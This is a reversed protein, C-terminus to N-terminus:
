QALDGLFAAFDEYLRTADARERWRKRASKRLAHRDAEPRQLFAMILGALEAPTFDPALLGGVQDDVLEPVGGVATAMVPVGASLAEMIAVPIGESSSTNLFLDVPNNRYYERVERNDLRGLFKVKINGPLNRCREELEARLPGDGIHVWEVQVDLERLAEAILDVRKIPVLNSCSLVRVIGDASKSSLGAELVGLRALRVKGQASPYRNALYDLGHGSVPCAAHLRELMNGRFPIGCPNEERDEYLDGGHFRAVTVLHERRPLFAALWGAHIGWYFYLIGPHEESFLEKIHPNALYSRVLLGACFWRKFCEYSRWPKETMLGRWFPALTERNLLGRLNAHWASQNRGSVPELCTVNEPLPRPPMGSNDFRPVITVRKFRRALFPLETELFYEGPLFPFCETFLVLKREM